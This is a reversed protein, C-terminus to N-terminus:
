TRGELVRRAKRIMELSSATPVPLAGKDMAVLEPIRDMEEVTASCAHAVRLISGLSARGRGGEAVHVTQYSVGARSAAERVTLGARARLEALLKPAHGVPELKKRSSM